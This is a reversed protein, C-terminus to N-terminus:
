KTMRQRVKELEAGGAVIEALLGAVSSVDSQLIPVAEGKEKKGQSPSVARRFGLKAAEKLRLGAHAAPRVAGSLGIEGFYVADAPLSVGV